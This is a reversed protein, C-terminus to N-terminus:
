VIYYYLLSPNPNEKTPVIFSFFIQHTGIQYQLFHERESNYESVPKGLEKKVESLTLKQLSSDYSTIMNAHLSMDFSYAVERALYRVYYSSGDTEDPEGWARIIASRSSGLGFESNIVKGEKALSFAQHLRVQLTSQQNTMPTTPKASDAYILNPGSLFGTTMLMSFAIMGTQFRKFNM